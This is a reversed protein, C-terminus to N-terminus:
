HVADEEGVDSLRTVGGLTSALNKMGHLQLPTTEEDLHEVKVMPLLDRHCTTM